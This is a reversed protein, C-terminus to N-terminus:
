DNQGGKPSAATAKSAVQSPKPMSDKTKQASEPPADFKPSLVKENKAAAAQAPTLPAEYTEIPKATSKGGDEPYFVEIIDDVEDIGLAGLFIRLVTPGDNMVQLPQGNLTLGTVLAQVMEQTNQQLIPPFSMDIDIEVNRGNATIKMLGTQEDYGAVKIARNKTALAAAEIVVTLIDSFIGIWMTQRSRFGLETPRDLTRATAMSGATTDGYFNLPMGLAACAQLLVVKFKEPDVVAKSVDIAKLENQDSTIFASGTVPPPNTDYGSSGISLSSQLAAQAANIQAQSAGSKKLQWAWKALSKVTKKYDEVIEKYAKAWDLAPYVEPVGFDWDSFGGVKKHLIPVDWDIRVEAGDVLLTTQKTQDSARSRSRSNLAAYKEARLKRVYNFDPYYRREVNGSANTWVRLYFYPETSDDPNHVISRMEDVRMRRVQTRGTFSNIYFAYFINGECRLRRENDLVADQGTLSNINSPDKLFNEVVKAIQPSGDAKVSYGQAWVYYAQLDVPRRIIPNKLYMMRSLRIIKDLAERSFQSDEGFGAITEWGADELALELQVLREQLIENNGIAAQTESLAHSLRADLVDGGLRGWIASKISV